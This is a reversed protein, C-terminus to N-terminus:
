KRMKSLFRTEICADMSFYLNIVYLMHNKLVFLAYIDFTLTQFHRKQKLHESFLITRNSHFYSIEFPLADRTLGVVILPNLTFSFSIASSRYHQVEVFKEKMWPQGTDVACGHLKVV